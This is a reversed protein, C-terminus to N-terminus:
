FHNATRNYTRTHSELTRGGEINAMQGKYEWRWGFYSGRWAMAGKRRGLIRRIKAITAIDEFQLLVISHKALNGLCDINMIVMYLVIKTTACIFRKSMKASSRKSHAVFLCFSSFCSMTHKSNFYCNPQPSETHLVFLVQNGIIHKQQNLNKGKRRQNSWGFPVCVCVCIYLRLSFVTRGWLEISIRTYAYFRCLRMSVCFEAFAFHTVPIKRSGYTWFEM